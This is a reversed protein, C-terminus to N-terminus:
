RAPRWIGALALRVASAPPPLFPDLWGGGSLQTVARAQILAFIAYSVSSALAAGMAGLPPILILELTVCLTLAVLAGTAPVRFARHAVLHTQLTRGATLFVLGPLLAWLLPVAGAYPDGFVTEIIWPAAIALALAVLGSAITALQAITVARRHDVRGAASDPLLVVGIVTSLLLLSEAMPLAVAYLGVQRPGALAQILPVDLRLLVLLAVGSINTGLAYRLYAGGSVADARWSIPWSTALLVVVLMLQAGAFAAFLPEVGGLGIVAVVGAGVLWAGSALATIGAVVPARRRGAEAAGILMGFVLIPALAAAAVFLSMNLGLRAPEWVAAVLTVVIAALGAMLAHVAAFRIVTAHAERSRGAFYLNANDAGLLSLAAILSPIAIMVALHGRSSPGLLRATIVGAVFTFSLAVLRLALTWAASRAM